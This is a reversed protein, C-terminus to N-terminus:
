YRRREFRLLESSLVYDLLIPFAVFQGGCRENAKRSCEVMAYMAVCLLSRVCVIIRVHARVSRHMGSPCVGRAICCAVAANCVPLM